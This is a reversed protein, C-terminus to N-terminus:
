KKAAKLAGGTEFEIWRQMRFPIEKNTMWYYITRRHVGLSSAANAVTGFKKVLDAPKM